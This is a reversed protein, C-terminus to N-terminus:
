YNNKLIMTPPYWPVGTVSPTGVFSLSKILFHYTQYTIQVRTGNIKHAPWSLLSEIISPIPDDGFPQKKNNAIQFPLHINIFNLWVIPWDVHNHSLSVHQTIFIPPDGPAGLEVGSFQQLIPCLSPPVDMFGLYTKTLPVPSHGSDANFALPRLKLLKPYGLFNCIHQCFHPCLVPNPNPIIKKQATNAEHLTPIM